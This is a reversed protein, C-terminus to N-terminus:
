PSIVYGQHMVACYNGVLGCSVNGEMIYMPCEAPTSYINRYQSSVTANYQQNVCIFQNPANNDCQSIQQMSCESLSSAYFMSENLNFGAQASNQLEQALNVAVTGSSNNSPTLVSLEGGRYMLFTVALILVVATIVLSLTYLRSDLKVM